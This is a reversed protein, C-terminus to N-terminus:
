ETEEEQQGNGSRELEHEALLDETEAAELGELYRKYKLDDFPDPDRADEIKAEQYESCPGTM